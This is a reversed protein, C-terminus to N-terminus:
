REGEGDRLHLDLWHNAAREKAVRRREEVPWHDPTDHFIAIRLLQEGLCAPQRPADPKGFMVVRFTGPQEPSPNPGFPAGLDSFRM